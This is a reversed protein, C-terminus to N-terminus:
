VAAGTLKLQRRCLSVIARSSGLDRLVIGSLRSSLAQSDSPPIRAGGPIHHVPSSLVWDDPRTSPVERRLRQFCKEPADGETM